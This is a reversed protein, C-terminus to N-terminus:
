IGAPCGFLAANVAQLLEDITVQEDGNTDMAPCGQSSAFGLAINVGTVIEDVTVEGDGNCDGPCAAPPTPEPTETPTPTPTPTSSPTPSPLEETPSLTPSPTPTDAAGVVSVRFTTAAALDGQNTGNLNVSNGAAFLTYQGPMAPARWQFEFFAEGNADNQKPGTHTLEQGILQTGQGPVSLLMGGSAAVNLGAARQSPSNSRVVFRFTAIAMPAVETPGELQVVPAVGGGHCFPQNCIQGTMGSVGTIGRSFAIAQNASLVGFGFLLLLGHRWKAYGM